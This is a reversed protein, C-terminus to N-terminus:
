FLSPTDRAGHVVRVIALPRSEPDYVILNSGVPWFRVPQDTLDHRTHGISPNEALRQCAEFLTLRVRQAAKIRHAAIYAWIERIDSAAEPSLRFRRM